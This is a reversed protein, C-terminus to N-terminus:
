DEKLSLEGPQQKKIIACFRVVVVKTGNLEDITWDKLMTHHCDASPPYISTFAKNNTHIPEFRVFVRGGM